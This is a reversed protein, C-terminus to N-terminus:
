CRDGRRWPPPKCTGPPIQATDPRHGPPVPPPAARVRVADDAHEGEVLLSINVKSAGQSIMKVNINKRGLAHFTRELIENSREVNGILSLIAYNYSVSVEAIKSFEEKIREM